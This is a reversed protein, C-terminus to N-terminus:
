TAWRVPVLRGIVVSDQGLVPTGGLPLGLVVPPLAWPIPPARWRRNVRSPFSGFKRPAWSVRQTPPGLSTTRTTRTSGRAAQRGPRPAPGKCRPLGSRRQVRRRATRAATRQAPKPKRSQRTPQGRQCTGSGAPV